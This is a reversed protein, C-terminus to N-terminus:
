NKLKQFEINKAILFDMMSLVNNHEMIKKSKPDLDCFQLFLDIEEPKLKLTELYFKQDCTNKALTEFEIEPLAKNKPGFLRKIKTMGNEITGDYMNTRIKAGRKDVDLEDLKAQEYSKNASLKISKMQNVVVEDLEEPKKYIFILLNNQEIQYSTLKIEKLYYDKAFFVLSDNAKAEITFDGKENALVSKKSTKNIVYVNQILTNESSINGKLIGATQSFVGHCTFFFFVLPLKIKM